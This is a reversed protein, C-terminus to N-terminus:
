KTSKSFSFGVSTGLFSSAMGLRDPKNSRGPLEHTAIRCTRIWSQQPTLPKPPPPLTRRRLLLVSSDCLRLGTLGFYQPNPDGRRTLDHLNRCRDTDNALDNITIICMWIIYFPSELTDIGNKYCSYDNLKTPAGVTSPTCRLVLRDFFEDNTVDYFCRSHPINGLGRNVFTLILQVQITGSINFIWLFFNSFSHM